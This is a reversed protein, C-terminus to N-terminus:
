LKSKKQENKFFNRRKVAQNEVNQSSKWQDIDAMLIAEMAPTIQASMQAVNMGCLPLELCTTAVGVLQNTSITNKYKGFTSEIVDSCANLTCIEKQEATLGSKECISDFTQAYKKIYEKLYDVFIQVSSDSIVMNILYDDIAKNTALCLGGKKYALGVFEAVELCVSMSKLLPQHLSIDKFFTKEKENLTDYKSLLTNAWTIVPKQNMFRTKSRQKPPLLYTLGQNVGKQKYANIQTFFKKYAESKSYTRRLCTGLAHSIDPLHPSDLLKASCKLSSCEDSVIYSIKLDQEKTIDLLIKSIKESTWSTDFGM